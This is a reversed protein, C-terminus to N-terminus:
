TLPRAERRGGEKATQFAEKDRHVVAFCGGERRSKRPCIVAVRHIRVRSQYLDMSILRRSASHAHKPIHRFSFSDIRAESVCADTVCWVARHHVCVDCPRRMLEHIYNICCCIRYVRQLPWTIQPVNVSHSASRVSVFPVPPQRPDLFCLRIDLFRDSSCWPCFPPSSSFNDSIKPFCSRHIKHNARNCEGRVKM